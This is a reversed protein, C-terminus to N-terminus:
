PTGAPLGPAANGAGALERSGCRTPRRGSARGGGPRAAAAALATRFTLAGLLYLEALGFADSSYLLKSFPALEMAEALVAEARAPGVYHLTLGVDLYVQPFM